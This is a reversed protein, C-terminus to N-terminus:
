SINNTKRLLGIFVYFCGGKKRLNLEFSIVQIDKPTTYNTLRRSPLHSKIYVLLGGQRGSIYAIPSIIDLGVSSRLQFLNTLKLKRLVYSILM